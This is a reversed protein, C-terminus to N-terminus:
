SNFEHKPNPLMGAVAHRYELLTAYQQMRRPNGELAANILDSCAVWAPFRAAIFRHAEGPTPQPVPVGFQIIKEIYEDGKRTYFEAESQSKTAQVLEKFRIKLGQGVLERDAAVIFVCDAEGLFAQIADLLDVAVDPMCRDLDDVFVCVRKGGGKKRFIEVLIDKYKQISDIRKRAEDDDKQKLLKAATNEGEGGLWSRLIGGLPSVVALSTAVAQGLSMLAQGDDIPLSGLSSKWISVPGTADLAEMVDDYDALVGTESTEPDIVKRNLFRRVGESLPTRPPTPADSQGYLTKAIRQILARWLEDATKYEWAGFNIFMVRDGLEHQVLQVFSTKGVGWQGYIGITFNAPVRLIYTALERAYKSAGLLDRDASDIPRDLNRTSNQLEPPAPTM